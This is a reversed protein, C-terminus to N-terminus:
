HVSLALVFLRVSNACKENGYPKLSYTIKIRYGPPGLNTTGLLELLAVLLCNRQCAENHCWFRMLM